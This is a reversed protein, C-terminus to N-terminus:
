SRSSFRRSSPEFRAATATQIRLCKSLARLAMRMPLLRTFMPAEDRTETNTIRSEPLSLYVQIPVTSSVTVMMMKPSVIGFIQQM